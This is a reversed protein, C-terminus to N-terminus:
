VLGHGRAVAASVVAEAHKVESGERRVMNGVGDRNQGTVVVAMTKSVVHEYRGAAHVLRWKVRMRHRVVLVLGELEVHWFFRPRTVPPVLPTAFLHENGCM